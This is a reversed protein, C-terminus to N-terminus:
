MHPSIFKELDIKNLLGTKRDCPNGDKFVILTPISMVMYTSALDPCEEVNLKLFKIKGNYEMSLEELIPYLKRCPNCWSAWFDVVVPIKSKLVEKEFNDHNVELM